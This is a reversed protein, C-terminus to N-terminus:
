KKRRARIILVVVIVAVAILLVPVLVSMTQTGPDPVDAFAVGASGLVGALTLLLVDLRKVFRKM